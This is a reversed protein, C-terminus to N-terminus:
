KPVIRTLSYRTARELERSEKLAEQEAVQPAMTEQQLARQAQRSWRAQRARLARPARLAGARRLLQARPPVEQLVLLGLVSARSVQETPVM